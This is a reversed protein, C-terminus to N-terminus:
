RHNQDTFASGGGSGRQSLALPCYRTMEGSETTGSNDIISNNLPVQAGKSLDPATGGDHVGAGADRTV